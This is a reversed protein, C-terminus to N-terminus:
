RSRTCFRCCWMPATSACGGKSNRWCMACLRTLSRRSRWPAGRTPWRGPPPPSSPRRPLREVSPLSSITQGTAPVIRRIEDLEDGFFDLRVPFSLNGPFVDVTGGRVAFTGPGDLEGTNAYGAAELARPLDGLEEVGEVGMDELEEGATLAIPRAANAEVPPLLCLLARASAVVVVERGSKLAWAAEMRQAIVRRDAPKPDFPYDAREPFRLVREEGVYAAVNRAFAVAADEGAVVVLTPQPAHAFRAAVLFPRASAAVGLTADEGADLKGWFTDLCGSKELTFALSDILM